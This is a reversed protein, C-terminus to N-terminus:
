PTVNATFLEPHIIRALAELGEVIRPGPRNLVDAPIQHLRGQKVASVSTWRLWEQQESLPIGEAKGIPFIIIEPDEKLVTEMNLRPYPVTTKSAINSGGAANIVQHLYSGPGVTILPQSNLVYLVRVATVTEMKSRIAAIRQRMAM